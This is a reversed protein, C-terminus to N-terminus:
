FDMSLSQATPLSNIDQSISTSLSPTSSTVYELSSQPHQQVTQVLHAQSANQQNLISNAQQRARIEAAKLQEM